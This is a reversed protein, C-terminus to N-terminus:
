GDGRQAPSTGAAVMPLDTTIVTDNGKAHALEHCHACLSILDEPRYTPLLHRERFLHAVIDAGHAGCRQCTHDDRLLAARRAERTRIGHFVDLGVHFAMGLLILRAWRWRGFLALALLLVLPHHLVRTGAHQEPQAQNFYRVAKRPDLTRERVSAFLYHDVDILISAAWPLVVARRLWPFLVASAATSLAVHDRVRM